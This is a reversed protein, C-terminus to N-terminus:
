YNSVPGSVYAVGSIIMPGGSAGIVVKVNKKEDIIIIPSMSSLPNKQPEIYNEPSPKIGYHDPVNPISFDNMNNNLTIHTSPSMIGSGFYLNLTATASVADGNESLVTIASTGADDKLLTVNAGYYEISNSTSHDNLRSRVFELWQDSQIYKITDKVKPVFKWDGLKFRQAYAFKMAEIFRHMVTQEEVINFENMIKLIGGTIAGSGPPTPAILTLENNLSFKM